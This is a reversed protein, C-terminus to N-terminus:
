TACILCKAKWRLLLIWDWADSQLRSHHAHTAASHPNTRVHRSSLGTAGRETKRRRRELLKDDASLGWRQQHGARRRLTPPMCGLVLPRIVSLGVCIPLRIRDSICFIDPFATTVSGQKMGAQHNEPAALVSQFLLESAM